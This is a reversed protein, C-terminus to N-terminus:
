EAKLNVMYEHLADKWHKMHYQHREHLGKNELISYCPRKAPTPYEATTIRSVSVDMGAEKFIEVAFEYWSTAGEGVAHYLGYEKTKILHCIVRALELASTPCGYQDGVVRIPNGSEGLRLMTKVFNKGEGFVWATRLIFHKEWIEQVFQDGALKTRGYVSIPSPKVEETYPETAQGEYVYDTSIHVLTADHSKAALALHKPGLGNIQYALDQETECLDVATMAACNIIVDPNIKAVYSLVDEVKTIDLIESSQDESGTADTCFVSIEPDAQFLKQLAVGLQGRAGTLMIHM